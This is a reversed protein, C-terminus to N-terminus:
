LFEDSSADVGSRGNDNDILVIRRKTPCFGKKAIQAYSVDVLALHALKAVPFVNQTLAGAQRSQATM